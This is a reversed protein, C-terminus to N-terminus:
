GGFFFTVYGSLQQVLAQASPDFLAPKLLPLFLGLGVCAAALIGMAAQMFFPSEKVNRFREPTEGDILHRQLKVYTVLTMLSVLVTVGGLVWHGAWVVVVVILLKSFFGNFPPLGSISLAGIRMFFSTWPMARGMGGLQEMDRAGTRYVISGTSLFLLGKFAAHNVLHFMAAFVALSAIDTWLGAGATGRALAEAGVGLALMVYGMQSISSYALLRKFDWQGVALLVGVVMSLIGMAMLVHGVAASVGLVNFVLRALVYVGTAKIMLGSLMASVPAPASSHADPLWGHFPVMAAKLGFGALFFATALLLADNPKAHQTFAAIQALNLTGRLSYVIAIGLLVLASGVASLILYKFSAELEVSEVGFGVLVCSAVAAVEMFIYIGFLDGSVVVGNMGAIILMLAAYYLHLKSYPQMYNLSFLVAALSVVSIMALLMRTLGDGFMAIGTVSKGAPLNFELSRGGRGVHLVITSGPRLAANERRLENISRLPRFESDSPSRWGTIVDGPELGAAAAASGPVVEDIEVGAPRAATAQAAPSRETLGLLESKGPSSGLWVSVPARGFTGFSILVMAVAVLVAIAESVRWRIRCGAFNLLPILFAAGLPILVLLPLLREM